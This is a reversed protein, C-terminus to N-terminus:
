TCATYNSCYTRRHLRNENWHHTEEKRCALVAERREPEVYRFAFAVVYRACALYHLICHAIRPTYSCLPSLPNIYRCYICPLPLPWPTRHCPVNIKFTGKFFPLPKRHNITPPRHRALPQWCGRGCCRDPNCPWPSVPGCPLRRLYSCCWWACPDLM